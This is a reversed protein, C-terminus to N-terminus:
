VSAATVAIPLELGSSWASWSSRTRTGNVMKEGVVVFVTAAAVSPFEDVDLRRASAAPRSSGVSACSKEPEEEDEEGDDDVLKAADKLLRRSLSWDSIVAVVQM